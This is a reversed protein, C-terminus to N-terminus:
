YLTLDSDPHVAKVGPIGAVQRDVDGPGSVPLIVDEGLPVALDENVDCDLRRIREAAEVLKEAAITVLWRRVM